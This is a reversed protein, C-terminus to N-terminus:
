AAAGPPPIAGIQQLLGLQDLFGWFEMVKDDALRLFATGEVAFQQGSAPAGMFDGTHTAQFTLRVAVTDGEAVLDAIPHRIDSFASRITAEFRDFNQLDMAPLGPFHAMFGADCLEM